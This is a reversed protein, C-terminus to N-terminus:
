QGPDDGGEGHIHTHHAHAVPLGVREGYGPLAVRYVCCDCNMRAGGDAAERFREVVLHALRPDAGLHAGHRVVLRPHSGAWTATQARIRDVLVGTFLFYPVVVIQEAGLRRCRELADAVSPLALSVFAPEVMAVGRADWLLRAAKYLDANADPDSSGRGALVVAWHAPDVGVSHRVRAEAVELVLPHVDLHHAYTFAVAPHRTRGRALAAPGDNKLHGAGLLVLPVGVISTAGDVVLKDIATDLDPEALEIFGNGVRVDGAARGVLRSLEWFEAVGAASRSGHGILLLAPDPRTSV